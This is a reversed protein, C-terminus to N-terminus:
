RTGRLNNVTTGFAEHDIYAAHKLFLKVTTIWINSHRSLTVFINVSLPTYAIWREVDQFVQM